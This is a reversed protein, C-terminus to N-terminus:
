AAMQPVALNARRAPFTPRGFSTSFGMVQGPPGILLLGSSIAEVRERCVQGPNGVTRPGGTTTVFHSYFPTIFFPEPSTQILFPIAAFSTTKCFVPSPGTFEAM